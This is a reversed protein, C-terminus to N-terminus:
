RGKGVTLNVRSGGLLTKGPTPKQRLVVGKKKQSSVKKTIKGVSCRAGRIKAKAKALKLGVVKPVKCKPNVAFTASVIHDLSM